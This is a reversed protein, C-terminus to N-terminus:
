RGPISPSQERNRAARAGASACASHAARQPAMFGAHGGGGRLRACAPTVTEDSGVLALM